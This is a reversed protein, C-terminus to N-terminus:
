PVRGLPFRSLWDVVHDIFVRVRPLMMRREAFVLWVGTEVGLVEPLVPVLVEAPARRRFEDPLMAIGLGEIAAQLLLGPDNAALRPHVAVTGGDLLPWREQPVEGQAFSVLCDHDALAEPSEPLGRRELYTPSAHARLRTSLLRRSVLGTGTLSGARLAVDIRDAVLDVHRSTAVVELEIEPWARVFSLLMGHLGPDPGPLSVRLLGRPAGDRARVAVQAAEVAAVIARAHGYLVEGAETAAVRRTTRHVLRQGVEEELRQLRRSLTPRPMGLVEAAASLSGVDLVAVLVDLDPLPM